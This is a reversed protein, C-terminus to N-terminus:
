ETPAANSCSWRRAWCIAGTFFRKRVTRARCRACTTSARCFWDCHAATAAILARARPLSWLKLRLNPDFSVRVGAAKAAEIAAFVADCATASIAQSIGSVHLLRAGRIVELPLTAADM